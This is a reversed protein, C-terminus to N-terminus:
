TNPSFPPDFRLTHPDGDDRFIQPEYGMVEVTIQRQPPRWDGQRSGVEVVYGTAMELIRVPTKAWAGTQYAFSHGDDEYFSFDGNGPAIKLRLPDWAREGTYQMVPALPIVGGARVYLPLRDPPAEALIHTPGIYQSDTWWDYWEGAPLYVVRKTIGPRLVPAALLHSGLMVQDGLHYTAVDGPFEYLMPRLIPDGSTAAGQCLTYVYPLLQYRLEIAERCIREVEAGFVWPEHPKTGMATHGRMLPYLVGVQMWRAFLEPTANGGFGGIDSGVFAVGSLGLNCLMALSMELHDWASFNDGGWVASWQQIGAYGSRTLVFSRESPRLVQLGECSARSMLHGYLNHVEAHTTREELSGQPADLPPSTLTGPDGFPRDSIAPENMDNWIGAVGQTTLASQLQGWWQRVEPRTFDPFVSKDPWVYGHFLSGDAKRLFYDNALGQDFPAYGAEPDFKVGPDIITVVRFGQAALDAILDRPDPFRVPDWTFVRFGRMYDIDFYVGDCPIGKQRFTTTLHRIKAESNYSWRCQQYGLAWLPPLPMKGTLDGYQRVVDAPTSGVMLYYDLETTDAELQWQSPDTEGLDFRSRHTTSVFYGCCLGPRVTLLWPIAQYLNDIMSHHKWEDVAWHTYSRGSKELLGTREGMGYLHEGAEIQKRLGVQEARWVMGQAADQDFVQGHPDLVRIGVPDRQILVKLDTTELVLEAEEERVQFPVTEWDEDRKTVAWSRRPLWPGTPSLRIRLMKSTLVQISLIPHCEALM